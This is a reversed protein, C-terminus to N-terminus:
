RFQQKGVVLWFNTLCTRLELGPDTANVCVCMKHLPQSVVTVQEKM